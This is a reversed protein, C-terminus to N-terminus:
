LFTKNKKDMHTKTKYWLSKVVLWTHSMMLWLLPFAKTGFLRLDNSHVNLLEFCLDQLWFTPQGYLHVHLRIVWWIYGVSYTRAKATGLLQLWRRGEATTSGWEYSMWCVLVSHSYIKKTLIYRKRPSPINEFYWQGRM